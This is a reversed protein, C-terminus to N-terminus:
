KSSITRSGISNVQYHIGTTAILADGAYADGTSAVRELTFMFQDGILFNTGTIAAFDTRATEYQTDFTTDPSDITVAADLTAGDRMVIYTLRWQVNDTGSPAAIGQWHTHFVLDTGEAYDHQLEFGGSVKEGIDFAYTPITTDAGAEDVFNVIDPAGSSPRTLLYGSINIDKYAKATGTAEMFGTTEFTSYNTNDDGFKCDGVVQLKTDPTTTGIGIDLNNDIVMADVGEIEFDISLGNFRFKKYAANTRDFSSILGDTGDHGIEIGTGGVPVTNGTVQLRGGNVYVNNDFKYADFNTFHVEDNATVDESNIIFDNSNFYMTADKGAGFMLKQNDAPVWINGGTKEILFRISTATDRIIFAGDFAGVGSGYSELSWTAPSNSNILKIAPAGYASASEITMANGFVHLKDSPTDTGIGLRKNVTDWFLHSNDQTVSTGDSFLVSGSTLGTVDLDSCSIDGTTTFDESGIDVEQNANGGDIDLKLADNDDAYKKTILDNQKNPTLEEQEIQGKYHIRDKGIGTWGGM